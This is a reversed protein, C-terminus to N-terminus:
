GNVTESVQKGLIGAVASVMKGVTGMKDIVLFEDPIEIQFEEELSVVIHIYNISDMGLDTLREDAQEASIKAGDIGRNVIRLVKSFIDEMSRDEKM